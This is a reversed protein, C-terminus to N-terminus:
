APKKSAM